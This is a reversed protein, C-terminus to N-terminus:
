MHVRARQYRKFLDRRGSLSEDAEGAMDSVVGSIAFDMATARRRHPTRGGGRMMDERMEFESYFRPPRRCTVTVTVEFLRQPGRTIEHDVIHIGQSAIDDFALEADLPRLAPPVHTKDLELNAKIVFLERQFDFALFSLGFGARFGDKGERTRDEGYKCRAGLM